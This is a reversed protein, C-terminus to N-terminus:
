GRSPPAGTGACRRRGGAIQVAGSYACIAEDAGWGEGFTLREDCEM